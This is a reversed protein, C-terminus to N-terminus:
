KTVCYILNFKTCSSGILPLEIEVTVTDNGVTTKKKTKITKLKNPDFDSAFPISSLMISDQRVTDFSEIPSDYDIRPEQEESFRRLLHDIQLQLPYALEILIEESAPRKKTM